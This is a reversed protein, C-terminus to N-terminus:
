MLLNYRRLLQKLKQISKMKYFNRTHVFIMCICLIFMSYFNGLFCWTIWFVQCFLGIIPASWHKNGYVWVSIVASVASLFEFLQLMIDPYWTASDFVVHYRNLMPIM